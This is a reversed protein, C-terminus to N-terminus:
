NTSAAERAAQAVLPAIWWDIDDEWASAWDAAYTPHNFPGTITFGDSPTGSVVVCMGHKLSATRLNKSM